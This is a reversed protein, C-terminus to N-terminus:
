LKGFAWIREKCWWCEGCHKDFNDTVAVCSRTMPFLTEILNYQNYLEALERKDKNIFPIYIKDWIEPFNGIRSEDPGGPENFGSKPHQTTGAVILDLELNLLDAEIQRMKKTKNEDVACEFIFLNEFSFGTEKEIFEIIPKAFLEQFPSLREIIIIPHVKIDLNNDIIHKVLLYALLSSDAGGSMKIGIRKVDPLNKFM